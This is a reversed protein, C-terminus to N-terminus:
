LGTTIRREAWDTGLVGGTGDTLRTWGELTYRNPATGLLPKTSNIAVDGQKWTSQTPLSSFTVAQEGSRRGTVTSSDSVMVTGYSTNGDMHLSAITGELLFGFYPHSGSAAQFKNGSMELSGNTGSVYVGITFTPATDNPKINTLLNNSVKLANVEGGSTKGVQIPTSFSDTLNGQILVDSIKRSTALVGVAIAVAGYTDTTKIINSEVILGSVAGQSPVLDFCKKATGDPHPYDDTLLVSNRSILIDEMGPETEVEVFMCVAKQAVVFTNDQVFQGRSISTMNGAVYVGWLYNNVTNNTFWNQSGHLEAAAIPGQVGSSMVPHDFVNNHVRVNNAWMYVSSHDNCDLGNNYFINHSVEINSGMTYGISNSQGLAICTVGPSNIVACNTFRSNTLRADVGVTAVSGSIMLAACNFYNYVLGARDPSIKNNQGNLDFTIGDIVLGDIVTNGGIMNFYKPSADTSQNDLLKFITLDRGAGQLVMGDRAVLACVTTGGEMPLTQSLALYYTGEPVIVKLGSDIAAQIKLSDDTGDAKAGFQRVSVTGGHLLKWRGGDTAVIVTGGNDVSTTDAADLLYTGAGRDGATYYGLTQCLTPGTTKSLLRLAAISEVTQVAQKFLSDSYQSAQAEVTDLAGQTAFFSVDKTAATGLGSLTLEISDVRGNLESNSPLANLVEGDFQYVDGTSRITILGWKPMPCSYWTSGVAFYLRKDANLFYAAGSSAVPLNDVIGDINSDFLFSFKLLNEDMGSNWGSEGFDWGYKGELFPSIKQVMM